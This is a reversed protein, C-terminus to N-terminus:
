ERFDYVIPVPAVVGRVEKAAEMAREEDLYATPGLVDEQIVLFVCPEDSDGTIIANQLREFAPIDNEDPIVKVMGFHRQPEGM